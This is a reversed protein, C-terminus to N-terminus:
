VLREGNYILGVNNFNRLAVKAADTVSNVKYSNSNWFYSGGFEYDNEDLEILGKFDELDKSSTFEIILTREDLSFKNGCDFLKIRKM